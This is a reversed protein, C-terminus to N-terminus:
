PSQLGSFHLDYTHMYINIAFQGVQYAPQLVELGPAMMSAAEVLAEMFLIALTAITISITIDITDATLVTCLVLVLTAM